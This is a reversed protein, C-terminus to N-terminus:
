RKQRVISRLTDGRRMLVAAVFAIAVVIVAETSGNGADPAIRFLREIFNM